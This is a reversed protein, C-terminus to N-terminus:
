SRFYEDVLDAEKDLLNLFDFKNLEHADIFEHVRDMNFEHGTSHRWIRGGFGNPESTPFARFHDVFSSRIHMTYNVPGYNSIVALIESISSAVLIEPHAMLM